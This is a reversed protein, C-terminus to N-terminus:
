LSLIGLGDPTGCVKSVQRYVIKQKCGSTASTFAINDIFIGTRWCGRSHCLVVVILCIFSGYIKDRLGDDPIGKRKPGPLYDALVVGRIQPALFGVAIPQGGSEISKTKSRKSCIIVFTL